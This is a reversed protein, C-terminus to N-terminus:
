MDRGRLPSSPRPPRRRRYYAVTVAGLLPGWALLPAYAAIALIGQWSDLNLPFGAPLDQGSMTRGLALNIGSWTWLLTLVLAGLTAPVVAVLVPVRRGRLGPVWRPLVEGWGAVLGIATFAALESVVSLVVVYVEIPLGPLGSPADASVLPGSAIPVHLAFVLIRWLSAPLVTM